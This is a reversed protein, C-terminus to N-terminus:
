KKEEKPKIAERLVEIAQQLQVHIQRNAQLQSVAQDLINLAEQPTM